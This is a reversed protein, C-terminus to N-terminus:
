TGWRKKLYGYMLYGICLAGVLIISFWIAGVLRSGFFHGISLTANNLGHLLVLGLINGSKIYALGFFAFLIFASGYLPIGTVGLAGVYWLHLSSHLVSSLLIAFLAGKVMLRDLVFGRFITEEFLGVPIFSAFFFYVFYWDPYNQEFHETTEEGPSEGMLWTVAQNYVALVIILVTFIALAWILGKGLNKRRLGVSPWFKKKRELSRVYYYIVALPILYVMWESILLLPWNIAVSSSLLIATLSLIWIVLPAVWWRPKTM